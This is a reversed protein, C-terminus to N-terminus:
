GNKKIRKLFKNIIKDIIFNTISLLLATIFLIFYSEIQFHSGLIWDVIKLMFANICLYFFGLTLATIPITLTVLIPKITINLIYTIIVIFTSYLIFKENDIYIGDFLGTIFIFALTYTSIYIFWELINNKKTNKEKKKM